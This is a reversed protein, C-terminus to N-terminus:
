RDVVIIIIVVIVAIAIIIGFQQFFNNLEKVFIDLDGGFLLTYNEDLTNRM